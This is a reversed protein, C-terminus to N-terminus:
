FTIRYREFTNVVWLTTVKGSKLNILNYSGGVGRIHCLPLYRRYAIITKVRYSRYLHCEYVLNLAGGDDYYRYCNGYLISLLLPM